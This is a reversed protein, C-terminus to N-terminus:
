GRSYGGNPCRYRTSVRPLHKGQREMSIPSPKLATLRELMEKEELLSMTRELRRKDEPQGPLDHELYIPDYVYATTM